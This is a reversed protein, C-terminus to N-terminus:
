PCHESILPALRLNLKSYTSVISISCFQRFIHFYGTFWLLGAKIIGLASVNIRYPM